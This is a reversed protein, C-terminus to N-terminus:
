SGLAALVKVTKMDLHNHSINVIDIPPLAELMLPSPNFRKPEILKMPFARDSLIPYKLILKSDMEIYVNAHELWTSRIAAKVLDTVVPVEIPFPGPSVHKQNGLMDIINVKIDYPRVAPLNQFHARNFSSSSQAKVASKKDMYRGFETGSLVWQILVYILLNISGTFIFISKFAKKWKLLFLM